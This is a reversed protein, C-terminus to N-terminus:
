IASERQRRKRARWACGQSCYKRQYASTVIYVGCLCCTLGRRAAVQDEVVMGAFAALLSPYTAEVSVTGLESIRHRRGVSCHIAHLYSTASSRERSDASPDTLNVVGWTFASAEEYWIDLPECYSNRFADEPFLSIRSKEGPTFEDLIQAPAIVADGQTAGRLIVCRRPADLSPVVEEGEGSELIQWTADSQFQWRRSCSKPTPVLM